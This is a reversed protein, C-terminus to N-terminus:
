IMVDQIEPITDSIFRWDPRVGAIILLIDLYYRTIVHTITRLNSLFCATMLLM